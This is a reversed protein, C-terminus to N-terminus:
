YLKAARVLTSAHVYMCPKPVRHYYPQERQLLFGGEGWCILDIIRTIDVNVTGKVIALSPEGEITAGQWGARWLALM